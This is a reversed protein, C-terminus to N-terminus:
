ESNLGCTLNFEGIILTLNSKRLYEDKDIKQILTPCNNFFDFLKHKNKIKGFRNTEIYTFQKENKRRIFYVFISSSDHSIIEQRYLELSGLLVQEMFILNRGDKVPMFRMKRTSGSKLHIDISDVLKLKVIKLRRGVKNYYVDRFKRYTGNTKSITEGSKLYITCPENIQSISMIPIILFLLIVCLKM